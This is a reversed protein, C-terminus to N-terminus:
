DPGCEVWTEEGVEEQLEGTGAGCEWGLVCFELVEVWLKAGLERGKTKEVVESVHCLM